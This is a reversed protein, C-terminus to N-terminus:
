RSVTGLGFRECQARLAYKAEEIGRAGATCYWYEAECFKKPTGYGEATMFGLIFSAEVDGSMAAAKFLRFARAFDRRGRADRFYNTALAFPDSKGGYSDTLRVEMMSRVDQLTGVTRLIKQDADCTMPIKAFAPL